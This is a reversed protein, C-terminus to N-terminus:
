FVPTERYDGFVPHCRSSSEGESPTLRACDLLSEEPKVSPTRPEELLRPALRECRSPPPATARQPPARIASPSISSM